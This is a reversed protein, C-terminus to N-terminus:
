RKKAKTRQVTHLHSHFLERRSAAWTSIEHSLRRFRTDARRAVSCDLLGQVDEPYYDIIDTRSDKMVVAAPEIKNRYSRASRAHFEELFFFVIRGFM